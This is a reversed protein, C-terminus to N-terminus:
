PLRDMGGEIYSYRIDPNLFDVLIRVIDLFSLESLGQVDLLVRIMDGTSLTIGYSNEKLFIDFPLKEMEKTLVAGYERPYRRYSSQIAQLVDRALEEATKGKEGPAV